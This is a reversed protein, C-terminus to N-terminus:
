HYDRGELGCMTSAFILNWYCCGFLNEVVISEDVLYEDCMIDKEMWNERANPEDYCMMTLDLSLKDDFIFSLPYCLETILIFLINICNKLATDEIVLFLTFIWIYFVIKFSFLTWSRSTDLARESQRVRIRNWCCFCRVEKKGKCHFFNFGTFLFMILYFPFCSFNEFLLFIFL